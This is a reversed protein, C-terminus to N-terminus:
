KYVVTHIAYRDNPAITEQIRPATLTAM